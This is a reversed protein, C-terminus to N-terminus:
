WRVRYGGLVTGQTMVRKIKGVCEDVVGIRRHQGHATIGTVYGIAGSRCFAHVGAVHCGGLIAAGAVRRATAEFRRYEIMGADDVVTRRTV